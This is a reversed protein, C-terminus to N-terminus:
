IFLLLMIVLRPSTVHPEINHPAMTVNSATTGAAQQQQQQYHLQQQQQQFQQHQQATAVVTRQHKTAQKHRSLAFFLALVAKLRGEQLDAACIDEIGAVHQAKLARVCSNINDLQLLLFVVILVPFLFM